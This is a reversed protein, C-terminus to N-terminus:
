GRQARCLVDIFDPVERTARPPRSRTTFVARAGPTAIAVSSIEQHSVLRSRRRCFPPPRIVASASQREATTPTFQADGHSNQNLEAPRRRPPGSWSQPQKSAAHRALLACLMAIHPLTFHMPSREARRQTAAVTVVLPRRLTNLFPSLSVRFTEPDATRSRSGGWGRNNGFFQFRAGVPAKWRRDRRAQLVLQLKGASINPDTM